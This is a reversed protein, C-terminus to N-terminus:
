LLIINSKWTVTHRGLVIRRLLTFNVYFTVYFDITVLTMIKKEYTEKLTFIPRVSLVVIFGLVFSDEFKRVFLVSFSVKKPFSIFDSFLM